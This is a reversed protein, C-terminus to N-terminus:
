QNEGQKKIEASYAVWAVDSAAYAADYAGRTAYAGSEMYSTWAADSAAWAAEYAAELRELNTM